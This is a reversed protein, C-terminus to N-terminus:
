DEYGITITATEGDEVNVDRNNVTPSFAYGSVQVAKIHYYGPSVQHEYTEYGSMTGIVEGNISIKYPNSSKSIIKIKGVEMEYEKFFNYIITLASKRMDQRLETADSQCMRLISKVADQFGEQTGMPAVDGVFGMSYEAAILNYMLDAGQSVGKNNDLGEWNEKNANKAVIVASEETPECYIRYLNLSISAAVGSIAIVNAFYGNEYNTALYKSCFNVNQEGNESAKGNFGLANIIAFKIDDPNSKKMIYDLM